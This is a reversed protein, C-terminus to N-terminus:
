RGNGFGIEYLHRVKAKMESVSLPGTDALPNVTGLLEVTIPATTGANFFFRGPTFLRDTNGIRLVKVPAQCRRAIRFAGKEFDGISGSRGRTGEPFVFFTGGSELYDAMGEVRRILLARDKERSQSPVYGALNMVWGFVPMRFFTHKIVTKQKKFISVLLIPDLYSIHNCVVVCSRISRVTEPIEVRSGPVLIGLLRFFGKFFIHNLRQIAVERNRSLVAVGIHCPSFVLVFVVTFYTWLVVTVAIDM